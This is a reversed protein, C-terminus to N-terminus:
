WSFCTYIDLTHIQNMYQSLTPTSQQSSIQYELSITYPCNWLQFRTINREQDIHMVHCLSNIHFHHYQKIHRQNKKNLGHQLGLICKKSMARLLKYFKELGIFVKFVLARFNILFMSSWQIKMNLGKFYTM